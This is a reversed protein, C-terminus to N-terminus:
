KEPCAYGSWKMFNYAVPFFHHAVPSIKQKYLCVPQIEKM